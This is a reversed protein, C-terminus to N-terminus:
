LESRVTQTIKEAGRQLVPVIGAIVGASMRSTPGSVSMALKIPGDIPVAVCHVGLEQEEEDLAYGRERVAHVEELLRDVTTITHPTKANLGVRTVRSVVEDDPILSLLAKGVGTAHLEARHGVETFMRMSRKSPVHAIYMARNLDFMAVSASEDVEAVVQTLAAKCLAGLSGGAREGLPILRVGLAYRRRPTQHAYGGAILTRLLRHITPLPLQSAEAIESIGLEGGGEAIVELISLARSVSQVAGHQEAM